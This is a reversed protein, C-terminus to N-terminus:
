GPPAGAIQARVLTIHHRLTYLMPMYSAPLRMGHARQDLRDLREVLTQSPAASGLGRLERELARLEAYLGFVRRQVVAGVALPALRALPIVIGLLPLLLVLLREVVAAFWFPLHRQLFPRGSKYYHRAEASLALDIAEPAPFQGAANFVGPRAHIQEAADLLVHQLAPHLSRRIILSSKEALLPVDAPPNDTALDGTGEPLVVKELYPYLAAFADVRKLPLLAIGPATLLRQVAPADWGTLMVAADIRGDLLQVAASDPSLGQLLASDTDIGARQILMFTLARTGSGVEGVSIRSANFQDLYGTAPKGHQRYFTWLPQIMVTGLSSLAPSREGDTLGGQLFAVDVDSASDQLRDLNEVDGASPRLELDLGHTALIARYQKGLEHYASGEPGTSMVIHKPPLPRIRDAAWWLGLGVAVTVVAVAAVQLGRRALPPRTLSM